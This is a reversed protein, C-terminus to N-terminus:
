ESLSPPEGKPEPTRLAGTPPPGTPPTGTGNGATANRKAIRLQRRATREVAQETRALRREIREVRARYTAGSTRERVQALLRRADVAIVEVDQAHGRIAQTDNLEWAIETRKEELVDVLFAAKQLSAEAPSTGPDIAARADISVLVTKEVPNYAASPYAASAVGTTGVVAATIVLLALATRPAGRVPTADWLPNDASRSMEVATAEAIRESVLRNKRTAPGTVVLTGDEAVQVRSNHFTTHSVKLSGGDSFSESEVSQFTEDDALADRVAALTESPHTVRAESAFVTGVSPHDGASLRRNRFRRYSFKVRASLWPLGVTLLGLAVYPLFRNRSLPGVGYYLSAWTALAVLPGGLGWTLTRLKNVM